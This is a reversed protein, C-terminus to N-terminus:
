IHAYRLYNENYGGFHSFGGKNRVILHLWIIQGAFQKAVQFDQVKNRKLTLPFGESRGREHRIWSLRLQCKNQSIPLQEGM